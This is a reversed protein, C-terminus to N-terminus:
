RPADGGLRHRTPISPPLTATLLRQSWGESKLRLRTAAILAARRAFAPVATRSPLSSVQTAFWSVFDPAPSEMFATLEIWRQFLWGSLFGVDGCLAPSAGHADRLATHAAGRDGGCFALYAIQLHLLALNYGRGLAGGIEQAKRRVAQMVALHRDRQVAPPSGVSTNAAHVRYFALPRDVFGVHFRALVRIWLEWDSYMLQEDHQGVADVCERRLMVTQGYICNGQLLTVVPDPNRTLDVTPLLGIPNGQEDMQMVRGYMLGVDPHAEMDEVQGAVKDPYFADDSSLGCWYRGSSHQFAANATASIGQHGGDPHTFVRVVDPDRAAYARAVDLSDDNSGDDVVVLEIPRYSQRLVSEIAAPLFRAHNYSPVCVSVLPRGAM